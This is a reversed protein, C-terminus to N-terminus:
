CCGPHVNRAYTRAHWGVRVTFFCTMVDRSLHSLDFYQRIIHARLRVQLDTVDTVRRPGEDEGGQDRLAIGCRLSGIRTREVSYGRADLAQGLRKLSLPEAGDETLEMHYRGCVCREDIFRSVADNALHYKGTAVRVAEPEDLGHTQYDRWGDVAWSLVADTELELRAGLQRDQEAEPIVVDFPVVRLRRWVAADDGSVKPLHNTILLATHSPTFEVFNATSWNV